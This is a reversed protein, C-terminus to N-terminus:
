ATDCESREETGIKGHGWPFKSAGSAPGEADVETTELM